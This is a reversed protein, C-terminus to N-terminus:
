KMGYTKFLRAIRRASSPSCAHELHLSLQVHDGEGNRFDGPRERTYATLWRPVNVPCHDAEIPNQESVIIDIAQRLSFLAPTGTTSNERPVEGDEPLFGSFACDGNEASEETVIQYTINFRPKDKM